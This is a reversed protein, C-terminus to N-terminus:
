HLEVARIGGVGVFPPFEASASPSLSLSVTYKYRTYFTYSMAKCRLRSLYAVEETLAISVTRTQRDGYEMSELSAGEKSKGACLNWCPRPM